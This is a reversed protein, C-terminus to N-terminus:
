RRRHTAIHDQVQCSDILVPIGLHDLSAAAGKGGILWDRRAVVGGIRGGADQRVSLALPENGRRFAGPEQGGPRDLIDLVKALPQRPM